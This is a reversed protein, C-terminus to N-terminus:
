RQKAVALGVPPGHEHDLVASPRPTSFASHLSDRLPSPLRLGGEDRLRAAFALETAVVATERRELEMVEVGFLLAKRQRKATHRTRHVRQALLRSIRTATHSSGRPLPPRSCPTQASLSEGSQIRVLVVQNVTLCAATVDRSVMARAM